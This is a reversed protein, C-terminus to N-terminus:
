WSSVNTIKKSEKCLSCEIFIDNGIGLPVFTYAFLLHKNTYKHKETHIKIFENASEEEIEDLEFKM